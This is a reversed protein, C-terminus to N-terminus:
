RAAEVRLEGAVARDIAALFARFAAYDAKAVRRTSLVTRAEVVIEDGRVSPEAKLTFSGFPSEVTAPEPMHARMGAPLRVRVREVETMAQPLELDHRRASLRAFASLLQPERVLLPLALASGDPRALRPLRLKAHAEVPREREDLHPLEISKVEAGPSRRAWLKEFREKREGAAQYHRRWAEAAQGRVIRHDEVEASGDKSLLVDLRAEMEAGTPGSVPTRKLAGEEVHLVAVGQDEAPLEAAGSFEATGDLYRDIAPVYAIAHDFPAFSAPSPAVEGERRTRLLVLSADIGIERLMVVLLSAKDKCDGFRRSFIQSVKYPQYGHVGFELAV